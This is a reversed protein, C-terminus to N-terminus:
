FLVSCLFCQRVSKRDAIIRQQLQHLSLCFARGAAELLRDILYAPEFSDAIASKVDCLEGVTEYGHSL